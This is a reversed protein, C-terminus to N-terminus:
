KGSEKAVRLEMIGAAHEVLEAPVNIGSRALWISLSDLRRRFGALEHELTVIQGRLADQEHHCAHRYEDYETRLRSFDALLEHHARNVYELQKLFGARRAERDDISLSRNLRWEKISTVALYIAAGIVGTWIGKAAPTLDILSQWWSM